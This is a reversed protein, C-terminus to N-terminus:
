YPGKSIDYYECENLGFADPVLLLPEFNSRAINAKYKQAKESLRPNPRGLEDAWDDALEYRLAKKYGPPYAISTVGSAIATLPKLSFLVLKAAEAPVPWVTITGYPYTPNYHIGMPLQSSESRLAIGEYEQQAFVKAHYEQESGAQKFKAAQIIHPRPTDLTAGSGIQYISTNPTLTFEEKVQEFILFGDNSWDELIDNLMELGDSLEAATPAEGSALGGALRLSSKILDSATAM